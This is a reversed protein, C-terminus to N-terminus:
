ASQQLQGVEIRGIEGDVIVRYIKLPDKAPGRLVAGTSVDFQAGHIPCTVISGDLKGESLPGQRHTCKEQTAFFSGGINFVAVSGLRLASGPHVDGIRFENEKLAARGAAPTVSAPQPSPAPMPSASRLWEEFHMEGLQARDGPVLSDESLEGGFYRAHTDAIVERSDHRASLGRRVFEDFRFREPGAVEITGNIPPSVAVKSVATAVDDGAIPQFAVPAIRVVNGSTAEDAIGKLFEFFQTSHVISYPVSSEKILKEQALKARFYGNGPRREIGVISLAVHHRVGAGVEYTLLNRTSTSFFKLVAADEFSPSNSVDVVVSAGKLVEALGEGTITNVGSNPSAAV